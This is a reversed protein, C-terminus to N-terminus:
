LWYFPVTHSQEGPEIRAIADANALNGLMHSGQGGLLRLQVRGDSDTFAQARALQTRDGRSNAPEILCGTQWQPGPANDGAMRRLAPIVHLHMGIFVAAPNGPLAFLAQEGRTAFLLPKGPKQAVKWFHRQLGLAQVAPPIHDRDGVSAGGSTIILDACALAEVLAQRVALADDPVYRLWRLDVPQGVLMTRILPGNADYIQAPALRQGVPVVEAGTVLVCVRVPRTVLVDAIGAACFAGVLGPTILHGAQAVADGTRVEEARRRIYDGAAVPVLPRVMTETAEVREQPVVADAGDPMPAGTLIRICEGPGIAPADRGAEARGILRRPADAENSCVVYGDMASNDFRPLDIRAQASERLVRGLAETVALRETPLAVLRLRYAAQADDFSILGDAM